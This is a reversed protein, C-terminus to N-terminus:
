KRKDRKPMQLVAAPEIEDEFYEEAEHSAEHELVMNGSAEMLLGFFDRLTSASRILEDVM